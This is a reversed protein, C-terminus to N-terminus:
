PKVKEVRVPVVRWGEKMAEKWGILTPCHPSFMEGVSHRVGKASSNIHGGILDGNLAGCFMRIAM